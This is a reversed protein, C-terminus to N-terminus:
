DLWSLRNTLVGSRDKVHNSISELLAREESGAPALEILAQLLQGFLTDYGLAHSDLYEDVKSVDGTRWLHMLRHVKDILPTTTVNILGPQDLGANKRQSWDKLKVTSSTGEAVDTELEGVEDEAEEDEDKVLGGTRTLLDYKGLLLSDSLNCSVAYLICPGIPASEMGFNYRHLLYYTTVDDLGSVTDTGGSQTLVRGVVFDAVMRRVHRLFETVSMVKGPENAKKVIPHKSYAELAPGTAAWVFDPGRIGADWFNRLSQIINQQMEELVLNDWGPRANEPRKKCVLWVSSALAASSLARTRNGMETQIPWSGDVVFGARILASVLTEWADPHKHAFVLVLRGDSSLSKYCSQFVRFMGDEYIAQSKAFDWGHRGPDDILEGDNKEHDWKPSLQERFANDIEPSLGYLTRRLWVYFFDMIDSYIIADYYPPDTLIVDINSTIEGLSSSQIASNQVVYPHSAQTSFELSHSIFRSIWEIAGLYGGSKESCPEVETFDWVIPLAFRGFTNRMKEGSNHWSCVTSSYDALRDLSLALYASLAEIWETSYGLSHMINRTSRINKIFTGLSVLQRPTFISKWQLLGYLRLSSSSRKRGAIGPTPEEPLGFPIDKYVTSLEKEAQTAVYLENETPIRYEKGHEGDVVVATMVASTKGALSESRLDEMTMITSCCPCTVGSRSMTGGALNKDYERKQAASGKKMAPADTQVGFVVGTRDANPEMTLVVRKNDKKCLWRTKLLPVTARCNKCTVTRAWLYAVTPKNDVIPYFRALDAKAQQLVWWGWARVHWALDAEVSTVETQLSPLEPQTSTQTHDDLGLSALQVRLTADKFGKAKFYSEMFERSQCAFAPLPLQQNALRQPYELTCKLIFWAVPNIDVATVDCGLRMAELPIAGGGSFPDLVRPARGGYAARIKDRFWQLDASSERGWHLIGGETEVSVQEEVRGDPLKKKKVREVIRGALRDMIEKREEENGPDPLLTAILAARSAALPRRAPWIHLTSIHGHRVNKEHVSDLSTQKLPFDVEILRKDM